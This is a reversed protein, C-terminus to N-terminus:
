LGQVYCTFFPRERYTRAQRPPDGRVAPTIKQIDTATYGDPMEFFELLFTTGFQYEKGDKMLAYFGTWAMSTEGGVERLRQLPIAHPSLSLEKLDYDAVTNGGTVFSRVIDRYTLGQRKSNRAEDFRRIALDITKDASEVVVCPLATGDNLTAAIRYREGYFENAPLPEVNKRVFAIIEEATM